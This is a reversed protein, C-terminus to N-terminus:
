LENKLYFRLSRRFSRICSYRYEGFLMLYEDNTRLFAENITKSNKLFEFYRLFFSTLMGNKRYFWYMDVEYQTLEPHTLTNMM